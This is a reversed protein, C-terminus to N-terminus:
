EVSSFNDLSSKGVNSYFLHVMISVFFECLLQYSKTLHFISSVDIFICICRYKDSMILFFVFFVRIYADIDNNKYYTQTLIPELHAEFNSSSFRRTKYWQTINWQPLAM